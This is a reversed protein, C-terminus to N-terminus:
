EHAGGQTVTGGRRLNYTGFGDSKFRDKAGSLYIALRGMPNKEDGMLGLSQLHALIDNRHTKGRERLLEEIANKVRDAKSMTGDSSPRIKHRIPEKNAERIPKDVAISARKDAYEILLDSIKRIKIYRPDAQIARYRPDAQLEGELEALERKLTGFVDTM